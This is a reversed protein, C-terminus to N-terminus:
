SRDNYWKELLEKKKGPPFSNIWKEATITDEIMWSQLVDKLEEIKSEPYTNMAWDARAEMALGDRRMMKHIVLTRVDQQTDSPLQNMLQDMTETNGKAEQIIRESDAIIKYKAPLEAIWDWSDKEQAAWAKAFKAVAMEMEDIAGAYRHENKYNLKNIFHPILDSHSVSLSHVFERLCTDYGGTGDLNKKEKQLWSWAKEPDSHTYSSIISETINQQSFTSFQAKNESFYAIASEPERKAWGSFLYPLLEEGGELSLLKNVGQIPAIEGWKELVLHLGFSGMCDSSELAEDFLQNLLEVDIKQNTKSSFYAENLHKKEGKSSYEHSLANKKKLSVNSM